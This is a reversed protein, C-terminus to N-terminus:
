KRYFYLPAIIDLGFTSNQEGARGNKYYIGLTYAHDSRSLFRVGGRYLVGVSEFVYNSQNSGFLSVRNYGLGSGIYGGFRGSSNKTSLGGFNMDLCVPLDYAFIFGHDHILNFNSDYSNATSFWGFGLRLPSGISLAFNNAEIFNVKPYYVIDGYSASVTLDSNNISNQNHYIGSAGFGFEPFFSQSFSTVPLIVALFPFLRKLNILYYLLNRSGVRNFEIM